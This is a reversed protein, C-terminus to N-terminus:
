FILAIGPLLAQFLLTILDYVLELGTALTFSRTAM